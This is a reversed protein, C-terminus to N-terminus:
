RCCFHFMFARAVCVLRQSSHFCPSCSSRLWWTLLLRHRHSAIAIAAACAPSFLGAAADDALAPARRPLLLLSPVLFCLRFGASPYLSTSTTAINGSHCTSPQPHGTQLQQSHHPTRTSTQLTTPRQGHPRCMVHARPAQKNPPAAHMQQGREGTYKGSYTQEGGFASQVHRTNCESRTNIKVGLRRLIYTNHNGNKNDKSMHCVHSTQERTANHLGPTGSRESTRSTEPAQQECGPLRCFAGAIDTSNNINNTQLSARCKLTENCTGHRATHMKRTDLLKCSHTVAACKDRHASATM